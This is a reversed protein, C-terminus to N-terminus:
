FQRGEEEMTKRSQAARILGTLGHEDPESAQPVICVIRGHRGVVKSSVISYVTVNEQWHIRESRVVHGPIGRISDDTATRQTRALLPPGHRIM